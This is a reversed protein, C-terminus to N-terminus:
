KGTTLYKFTKSLINAYFIFLVGMLVTGGLLFVPIFDSELLLGGALTGLAAGIDRWTANESVADLVHSGKQPHLVRRSRQYFAISLLCFLRVLKM